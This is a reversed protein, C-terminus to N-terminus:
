ITSSKPVTINPDQWHRSRHQRPWQSVGHFYSSVDESEQAFLLSSSGASLNRGHGASDPVRPTAEDLPTRMGVVHDLLYTQMPGSCLSCPVESLCRISRPVALSTVAIHSSVSSSADPLSNETDDKLQGSYKSM